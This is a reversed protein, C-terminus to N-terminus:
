RAVSGASGALGSPGAAPAGRASLLGLMREVPLPKPLLAHAGASAIDALRDESTFASMLLLTAGPHGARLAACLAVGDMEPMRVDLLAADFVLADRRELAALPSTFLSVEFGELELLERLNEGLAENDDVVLIRRVMGAPPTLRDEGALGGSGDSAARQADRERGADRGSM